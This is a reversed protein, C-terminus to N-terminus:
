DIMINKENLKRKLTTASIPEDYKWEILTIGNDECIQKKRADREQLRAFGEEGGFFDIPEYHQRGQYEFAIKLEPVYTDFSQLDLLQENRYQFIANSFHKHILKFMQNESKWKVTADGDEVMKQYTERYVDRGYLNTTAPDVREYICYNDYLYRLAEEKVFNHKAMIKELIQKCDSVEGLSIKSYLYRYYRYSEGAVDVITSPSFGYLSYKKISQNVYACLDMAEKNKTPVKLDINVAIDDDFENEIRKWELEPHLKMYKNMVQSYKSEDASFYFHYYYPTDPQFLPLMFTSYSRKSMLKVEGSSIDYVYDTTDSAYGGILLRKGDESILIGNIGNTQYYKQLRYNSREDMYYFFDRGELVIVFRIYKKSSIEHEYNQSISVFEGKEVDYAFLRMQIFDNEFDSFLIDRDPLRFFFSDDGNSVPHKFLGCVTVEGNHDM